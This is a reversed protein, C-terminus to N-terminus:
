LEDVLMDEMHVDDAERCGTCAVDDVDVDEELVDVEFLM